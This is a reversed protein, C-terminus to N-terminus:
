VAMRRRSDVERLRRHMLYGLTTPPPEQVLRITRTTHLGALSTTWNGNVIRATIGYAIGGGVLVAGPVKSFQGTNKPDGGRPHKTPDWIAAFKELQAEQSDTVAADNWDRSEHAPVWFGGDLS